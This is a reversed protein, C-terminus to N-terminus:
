SRSSLLSPSQKSFYRTFLIPSLFVTSSMFCKFIFCKNSLGWFICCSQCYGFFHLNEFDLVWFINWQDRDTQIYTHWVWGRPNFLMDKEGLLSLVRLIESIFGQFRKDQFFM